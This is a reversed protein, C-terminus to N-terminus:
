VIVQGLSACTESAYNSTDGVTKGATRQRVSVVITVIVVKM